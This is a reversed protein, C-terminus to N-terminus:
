QELGLVEEAEVRFKALEDLLSKSLPQPREMWDVARQYYDLALQRQGLEHLSMALFLWDFAGNDPGGRSAMLITDVAEQHRGLRYQIVGLTNLLAPEDPNKALAREILPLARQPDRVEPPGIAYAWALDNLAAPADPALALASELSAIARRWDGVAQLARARDLRDYWHGGPASFDLGGADVRVVLPRAPAREAPPAIAPWSWDLGLERLQARLLRLDFVQVTGESAATALTGGDVSFAFGMLSRATGADLKGITAGTLPDRVEFFLGGRFTLLLHGDPSFTAGWTHISPTQLVVSWDRTSWLTWVDEDVIVLRDDGPHFAVTASSRTPIEKLLEGTATEWIRVGSGKWTGAAVWRGDGSFSLNSSSSAAKVVVRRFPADLELLLLRATEGDVAALRRGDRSVAVTSWRGPDLERPEDIWLVDSEGERLLRLRFRLLGRHSGVVFGDGSPLFCPLGFTPLEHERGTALDWLGVSGDASFALFRGAPHMQIAHGLLNKAIRTSHLSRCERGPAVEWETLHVDMGNLLRTDGRFFQIPHFVGPGSVLLERTWPNWLRCIGDWGGSALISGDKSFAVGIASANHGELRAYLSWSRSSWAYVAGDGCAAALIRDDPSWCVGNALAPHRLSAISAGTELDVIDVHYGGEFTVALWPSSSAALAALPRKDVSFSRLPERTATDHVIGQGGPEILFFRRDGATFGFAPQYMPNPLGWPDGPAGLDWLRLYRNQTRQFLGAVFRGTASFAAGAAKLNPEVTLRVLETEDAVRRVSLWPQGPELAIYREVEADFACDVYPGALRGHPKVERLDALTLCAIAEDRLEPTAHISAAKRIAELSNFRRGPRGSLRGARAQNLYADHLRERLNFAFYSSGIAIAALLIFVIGTLSAVMPRRKAWRVLREPSSIARARIPEGHLFRGLDDALEEGTAYRKEPAKAMAKLVITELDRPIRRDLKRPPVPDDEAVRQMLRRRDPDRFAPRLTLMEYLTVGLSYIDVRGDAQGEFREPAMYAITGVVNGTMTLSEDVDPAKALGFDAVWVSGQEDLLLNSPKIDRHVIGERHAYALADAIDRGIRAVSRYYDGELAPISPLPGPAAPAPELEAAPAEGPARDLSQELLAHAMRTLLQGSDRVTEQSLNGTLTLTPAGTGTAIERVARLVRDLSPGRIFQMTYYHIGDQEGVGLVPVIHTHHLRAAAKAERLFREVYSPDLLDHFGLVKLAVTRGLALEVAEYVVGMGGQGVRRVIRYDGLTLPPPDVPQKADDDPTPPEM